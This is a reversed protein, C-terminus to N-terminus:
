AAAFERLVARAKETLAYTRVSPAYPTSPAHKRCCDGCLKGLPTFADISLWRACRQCRRLIGIVDTEM